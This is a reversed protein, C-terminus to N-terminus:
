KKKYGKPCVPKVGSVKKVLKGKSCAITTKKLAAAMAEAEQKAKVEAAAKAEAEQKAKVEAAAKAEAEQKAKVEAATKEEEIKRLEKQKDEAVLSEAEKIFQLFKNTAAFGSIGVGGVGFIAWSASQCNPMGGQQGGVAGLYYRTDSKEVFFGAGSDGDCVSGFKESNPVGYDLMTQNPAWYSLSNNRYIDRLGENSVLYSTMKRPSLTGYQDPNRQTPNQLGYGVMHVPNKDKIFTAIDSESAVVVQNKMPISEQLVLIAFDNQRTNDKGSRSKFTPNILVKKVRYQKQGARDGIGPAYVSGSQEWRAIRRMSEEVTTGDSLIVHAATFVLRDSYLFGSSGEVAIANPDGIADQGFEVASSSTTPFLLTFALAFVIYKKM